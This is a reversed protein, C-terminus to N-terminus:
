NRLNQLHNEVVMQVVHEEESASKMSDLQQALQKVSTQRRVRAFCSRFFRRRCWSDIKQDLEDPDVRGTDSIHRSARRRNRVGPVFVSHM